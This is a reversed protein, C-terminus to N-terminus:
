RGEVLLVPLVIEASVPLGNRRAPSFKWRAVAPLLRRALYPDNGSLMQIHQPRGQEDITLGLRITENQYRRPIGAPPVVSLPAPVSFEEGGNMMATELVAAGSLTSVSLLGGILTAALLIKKSNM